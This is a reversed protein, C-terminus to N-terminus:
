FFAPAEQGKHYYGAGARVSSQIASKSVKNNAHGKRTVALAKNAYTRGSADHGAEGIMAWVPEAPM